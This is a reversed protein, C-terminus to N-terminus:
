MNKDIVDLLRLPSIGQENFQRCLEDVQEGDQSVDSVTAIETIVRIGYAEYNGLEDSYLREKVPEYRCKM